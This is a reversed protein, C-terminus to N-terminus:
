NRLMIPLYLRLEVGEAEVTIEEAVVAQSCPNTATLVVTYTGSVGYTHTVVAGAAVSGDGLGWDFAIPETGRAEASFSVV